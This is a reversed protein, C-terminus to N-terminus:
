RKVASVAYSYIVRAYFLRRRSEMDALGLISLHAAKLFPPYTDVKATGRLDDNTAVIEV